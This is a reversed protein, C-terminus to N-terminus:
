ATEEAPRKLLLVQRANLTLAGTVNDPGHPKEFGVALQVNCYDDCAYTEAIRAEVLVVDGVKLPTGHRDHM